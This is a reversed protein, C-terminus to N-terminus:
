FEFEDPSEEDFDVDSDQNSILQQEKQIMKELLDDNEIINDLNEDPAIFSKLDDVKEKAKNEIDVVTEKAKEFSDHATTKAKDGLSTAKEKAKEGLDAVKEKAKDSLDVAKEKAKITSQKAKEKIDNYTSQTSDKIKEAQTSFAQKIKETNESSLKKDSSLAILQAYKKSAKDIRATTKDVVVCLSETEDTTTERYNEYFYRGLEMYAQNRLENDSKIVQRIRNANARLRSKEVLAQAVDTAADAAIKMGNKLENKIDM